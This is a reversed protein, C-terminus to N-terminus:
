FLVSCTESGRAKGSANLVATFFSFFFIFLLTALLQYPGRRNFKAGLYGLRTSGGAYQARSDSILDARVASSWLVQM